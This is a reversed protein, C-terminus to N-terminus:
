REFLNGAMVEYKAQKATLRIRDFQKRHSGYFFGATRVAYDYKEDAMISDGHFCCPGGSPKVTLRGKLRCCAAPPYSIPFSNSSRAPRRIGAARLIAKGACRFV